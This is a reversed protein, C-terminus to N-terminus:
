SWFPPQGELFHRICKWHSGNLLSLMLNSSFELWLIPHITHSASCIGDKAQRGEEKRGEERGESRDDRRVEEREEKEERGEM